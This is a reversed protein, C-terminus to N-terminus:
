RSPNNQNLGTSIIIDARLFSMLTDLRSQETHFKTWLLGAATTSEPFHLESKAETQNVSMSSKDVIFYM